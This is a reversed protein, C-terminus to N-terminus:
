RGGARKVIEYLETGTSGKAGDLVSFGEKTRVNLDVKYKILLELMAKAKAKRSRVVLYAANEGSENRANVDAGNKLLIEMIEPNGGFAASHLAPGYFTNNGINVDAKKEILFEVLAKNTRAAVMLPTRGSGDRENVVSPNAEVIKKVGDIDGKFCLTHIEAAEVTLCGLLFLLVLVNKM